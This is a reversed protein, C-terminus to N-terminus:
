SSSPSHLRLARATGVLRRMDLHVQNHLMEGERDIEIARGRVIEIDAVRRSSRTSRELEEVIRSSGDRTCYHDDM